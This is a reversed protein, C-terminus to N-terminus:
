LLVCCKKLGEKRKNQEITSEEESSSYFLEEDVFIVKMKQDGVQVYVEEQELYPTPDKGIAKCLLSIIEKQKTKQEELMLGERLPEDHKYFSSAMELPTLGQNNAHDSYKIPSALLIKVIDPRMLSVAYHMMNIELESITFYIDAGADILLQILELNENKIALALPSLPEQTEPKTLANVPFLKKQLLFKVVPINECEVAAHLINRGKYTATTDAGKALLEEVMHCTGSMAAYILFTVQDGNSLTILAHLNEQSPILLDFSEDNQAEISILLVKKVMEEDVMPLLLKVLLLRKNVIAAEVGMNWDFKLKPWKEIFLQIVEERNEEVAEVLVNNRKVDPRAGHQLLLDAISVFGQNAAVLLPSVGNESEANVDAKYKLLLQVSEFQNEQVAYHLATIGAKNRAHIDVAKRQLITELLELNGGSASAHLLTVKLTKQVFDLRAGRKVLEASLREKGKFSTLFIPSTGEDDLADIKAGKECLFILAELNENTVAAHLLTRGRANRLDVDFPYLEQLMVNDGKQILTALQYFLDNPMSETLTADMENIAHSQMFKQADPLTEGLQSMLELAEKHQADSDLCKQLHLHDEELSGQKYFIWGLHYFAEAFDPAMKLLVVYTEKAKNLESQDKYIQGLLLYNRRNKPDKQIMEKLKAIASNVDGKNRLFLVQFEDASQVKHLDIQSSNADSEKNDGMMQKMNMIIEGLGQMANYHEADEETEQPSLERLSEFAKQTLKHTTGVTLAFMHYSQRFLDIAQPLQGKKNHLMALNFLAQAVQPSSEGCVKKQLELVENALKFARPPDRDVLCEQLLSKLWAYNEDETGRKEAYIQVAEEAAKIASDVQGAELAVEALKKLNMVLRDSKKGFCRSRIELASKLFILANVWDKDAAALKGLEDWRPANSEDWFGYLQQNVYLEQKWYRLAEKFKQWKEYYHGLSSLTVAVDPHIKGFDEEQIKLAEKLNGIGKEFQGLECQCGGLHCLRIARVVSNHALSLAQEFYGIAQVYSNNKKHLVGLNNHTSGFASKAESDIPKKQNQWEVYIKEVQGYFTLATEPRRLEMHIGALEVYISLLIEKAEQGVYTEYIKHAKEIVALAEDAKHLRILSRGLDLYPHLYGEIFNPHKVLESFVSKYKRDSEAITKKFYDVAENDLGLNSYITGLKTLALGNTPDLAVVKEFAEKAELWRQAQFLAEAEDALSEGKNWIAQQFLNIQGYTQCFQEAARYIHLIVQFMNTIDVLDEKSLIYYKGERWQYEEYATQPEYFVKENEYGYHLHTKVRFLAIQNLLWAFKRAADPHFLNKKVLEDLREWSNKAKLNYYLALANLLSNPFRYLEKKIDFVKSREKDKDLRPKFEALDGKILTLARQVRTPIPGGRDAVTSDLIQKGKNEYQELLKEDGLILNVNSLANSLILDRQFWEPRLFAAMTEPTGILEFLGQKGLPTNGGSDLSFGSQTVSKNGHGLIPYRTEGLNILKLELMQTLYRFYTRAAPLDNEILVAFELDSFPSAEKRSMSGMSILAYGTPPQGLITICDQVMEKTLSLLSETIKNLVEKMALTKGDVSRRMQDLKHRFYLVRDEEPNYNFPLQKGTLKNGCAWECKALCSFLHNQLSTNQLYTDNIAIAANFLNCAVNFQDKLFYLQGLKELTETIAM